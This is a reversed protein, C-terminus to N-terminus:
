VSHFMLLNIILLSATLGGLQGTVHLAIQIGSRSRSFNMRGSSVSPLNTITKRSIM